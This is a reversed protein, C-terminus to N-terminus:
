IEGELEQADDLLRRDGARVRHALAVPVSRVLHGDLRHAADHVRHRDVARDDDAFALAVLRRHQVDALLDARRVRHAAARRRLVIRLDIDGDIRELAGVQARGTRRVRDGHQRRRVAAAQQVRGIEVHLLQDDTRARLIVDAEVRRHVLVQLGDGATQAAADLIQDDDHEVPRAVLLEDVVDARGAGANAQDAVAIQRGADGRRDDPLPTWATIPM